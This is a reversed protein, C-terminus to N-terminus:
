ISKLPIEEQLEFIIEVFGMYINEKYWPAQYIFKKFDDKILIYYNPKCDNLMQSLKDRAPEPHCDLINKGILAVGGDNEFIELAKDNLYVLNGFKDCINIACGFGKVWDYTEM